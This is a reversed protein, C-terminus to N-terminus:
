NEIKNLFNTGIRITKINKGIDVSRVYKFMEIFKRMEVKLSGKIVNLGIIVVINFVSM